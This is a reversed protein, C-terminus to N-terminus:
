GLYRIMLISPSEPRVKYIESMRHGVVWVIEEGCLALPIKSKEFLPIKEDVFFDSLKKSQHMGLPIFSDGEKWYRFSLGGKTKEGDLYIIREKEIPSLNKNKKALNELSSKIKGVESEQDIWICTFSDALLNFDKQGSASELPLRDLFIFNRDFALTYTSSSFSKGPQADLNQGIQLCQGYSFGYPHLAANIVESAMNGFSRLREIELKKPFDNGEWLSDVIEKEKEHALYEAWKLPKLHRELTEELNPNLSKLVPIIDQRIRNRIYKKESNSQDERYPINQEDREQGIEERSFSLLPRVWIGNKPLIGRLGALGSGRCLNILITELVDNQHHGLACYDYHFEQCVEAFWEYRLNRAAMQISIKEEKSISVTDFTKSHFPINREKSWNRVFEQDKDSESGRLSFNCHAIAMPFGSRYFLDAMVMSDIGGSVALLGKNMQDFLSNEKIFAHFRDMLSPTMDLILEFLLGLKVNM